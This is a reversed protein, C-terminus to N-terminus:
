LIEWWCWIKFGEPVQKSALLYGEEETVAEIEFRTLTTISGETIGHNTVFVFKRMQAEPPPKAHEYFRVGGWTRRHMAAVEKVWTKTCPGCWRHTESIYHGTSEHWPAKCINCRYEM